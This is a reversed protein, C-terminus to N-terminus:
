PCNGLIRNLIGYVPQFATRNTANNTFRVSQQFRIAEFTMDDVAPYAIGEIQYLHKRYYFLAITSHSGDRGAVSLQRGYVANVRHTINLKVAGDGILTKMAHELVTKEDTKIGSFDAVTVKLAADKEELSYVRAEVSTGDATPYTGKTIKPEAPFSIGFNDLPYNYDRWGKSEAFATGSLLLGALV